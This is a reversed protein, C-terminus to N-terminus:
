KVEKLNPNYERPGKRRAIEKFVFENPNDIRRDTLTRLIAFKDKVLRREKRQKIYTKTEAIIKEELKDDNEDLSELNHLFVQTLKDYYSQKENYKKLKESIEFQVTGIQKALDIIDRFDSYDNTTIPKVKENSNFVVKKDEKQEVIKVKVGQLVGMKKAYWKKNADNRAKKICDANDCYEKKRGHKNQTFEQGCYKCKM